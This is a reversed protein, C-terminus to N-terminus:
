DERQRYDFSAIRDVGEPIPVGAFIERMQTLLEGKVVAPTLPNDWTEYLDHTQEKAARSEPTHFQLEFLHGSTRHRWTSNIGQYPNRPNIWQNKSVVPEFGHQELRQYTWEVGDVYSTSELEFTYRIADVVEGLHTRVPVTPEELLKKALKEKLRAEGKLSTGEAPGVLRAGTEAAVRQLRETIEPYVRGRRALFEDAAANQEQTLDLGKEPWHWGGAEDVFPGNSGQMGAPAQHAAPERGSPSRDPDVPPQDPDVRDFERPSGPPPGGPHHPVGPPPESVHRGGVVRDGVVIARYPLEVKTVPDKIRLAELKAAVEATVGRAFHVELRPPQGDVHYRGSAIVRLQDRVQRQLKRFSSSDLGFTGYDKADMWVRGRDAIVDVDTTYTRGDPATASVRRDVEVVGDTREALAVEAAIARVNNGHDRAKQVSPKNEGRREERLSSLESDLKKLWRETGKVEPHRQAYAEVRVRVDNIARIQNDIERIVEPGPPELAREAALRAERQALKREHADILADELTKGKAHARNQMNDLAEVLQEENGRMRAYMEAFQERARPDHLADYRDRLHDPLEEPRLQGPDGAAGPPSVSEVRMQRHWAAAADHFAAARNRDATAAAREAAAAQEAASALQRAQAAHARAEDRARAHQDAEVRHQDAAQRHAEAQERYAAARQQDAPHPSAALEDATRRLHAAHADLEHARQAAAARHQEHEHAARDHVAAQQRYQEGRRALDSALQDHRAASEEWQQAARYQDGARQAAEAMRQHYDARQEELQRMPDNPPHKAAEQLHRAAEQRHHVAVRHHADAAREADRRYDSEHRAAQREYEAAFRDAQDAAHEAHQRRTEAEGARQMAQQQELEAHRRLLDQQHAEARAQQAEHRAQQASAHHQEVLQQIQQRQEVSVAQAQRAHHRAAEEHQQAVQDLQHARSWAADRQQLHAAARKAAGQAQQRAVAAEVAHEAAQRRAQEAQHSYDAAQQRAARAADHSARASEAAQVEPSQGRLYEPTLPRDNWIGPPRDAFPMPQANRDVVLADMASIQAQSHIPDAVAQGSHAEVYRIGGQGDPLAMVVRAHQPDIFHVVGNHNVAAWAHSGGGRWATIISAFSGHGGALLQQHIQRFGDHVRQLAQAPSQRSVDGVLSQYRGGTLDEMRGPGGMEGAWPVQPNGRTYGDFTRPAAVTPRGHVYTDFLSAVCDLCNQTRTPDAPVGFANLLRLWPGKPDPTRVYGGHGDSLARELRVQDVHLVQRLGHEVGYPRSRWVPPPVDRRTLQSVEPGPHQADVMRFGAEADVNVWRWLAAHHRSAQRTIEDAQRTAEAHRRRADAALQESQRAQDEARQADQARRTAYDDLQEAHRRTAEYFPHDAGLREAQARTHQASARAREADARANAAEAHQVAAQSRAQQEQSYAEWAEQRLQQLRPDREVAMVFQGQANRLNAEYADREAQDRLERAPDVPETRSFLNSLRDWVRAFLRARTQEGPAALPGTPEQGHRGGHGPGSPSEARAPTVDADEAPEPGTDPRQEPSGRDHQPAPEGPRTDALDPERVRGDPVPQPERVLESTGVPDPERVAPADQMRGSDASRGAEVAGEIDPAHEIDRPLPTVPAEGRLERLKAEIGAADLPRRIGAEDVRSFHQEVFSRLRKGYANLSEPRSDLARQVMEPTLRAGTPPGSHRGTVPAASFHEAVAQSYLHEARKRFEWWKPHEGGRAPAGTATASDRGHVPGSHGADQHRTHVTESPRTRVGESATSEPRAAADQGGSSTPGSSRDTSAADREAGGVHESPVSESRPSGMDTLLSQPTRQEPTGSTAPPRGGGPAGQVGIGDDRVLGPEAARVPEGRGAPESRDLTDKAETHRAAETQRGTETHRATDAQGATETHRTTETQRGTDSQRATETHRATEAQRVTETQRGTDTQRATETQRTTETHRGTDRDSGTREVRASDRGTSDVRAAEGSGGRTSEVRTSTGSGAETRSSTSSQVSRDGATDVRVSGDWGARTQPVQTAALPTDVGTQRGLGPADMLAGSDLQHNMPAVGEGARGLNSFLDAEGHWVSVDARLRARGYGSFDTLIMGALAAPTLGSTIAESTMGSYLGNREAWERLDLRELWQDRKLQLWNDAVQGAMMAGASVLRSPIGFQLPGGIAGTIFSDVTERLFRGAFDETFPDHGELAQVMTIGAKTGATFLAFQAGSRLATKAAGRVGAKMTNLVSAKLTQQWLRTLLRKMAERIAIRGTVMAAIGSVGGIGTWFTLLVQVLAAAVMVLNVIAMYVASEIELAKGHVEQQLEATAQAMASCEELYARLQEHVLTATGDGQWADLDNLHPTLEDVHEQYLEVVRRYADALDFLRDHRAEPFELVCEVFFSGAGPIWQDVKLFFERLEQLIDDVQSM